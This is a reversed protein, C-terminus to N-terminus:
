PHQARPAEVGPVPQRLSRLGPPGDRGTTARVRARRPPWALGVDSPILVGEAELWLVGGWNPWVLSPPEGDRVRWLTRGPRVALWDGAALQWDPWDRSVRWWWVRGGTNVRRTRGM